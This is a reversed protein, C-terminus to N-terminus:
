KANFIQPLNEEAPVEVRGSALLRVREASEVDRQPIQFPLGEAYGHVLQQPAPRAIMHLAIRGAPRPRPRRNFFGARADFCPEASVADGGVLRAAVAEFRHVLGVLVAALNAFARAFVAAPTDVKMGLEVEGIGDM